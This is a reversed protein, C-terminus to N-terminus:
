LIMKRKKASGRDEDESDRRRKVESDWHLWMSTSSENIQGWKQLHMRVEVELSLIKRGWFQKLIPLVMIKMEDLEQLRGKRCSEWKREKWHAMKVLAYAVGIIVSSNGASNIIQSNYKRAYDKGGCALRHSLICENVSRQTVIVSESGLLGEMWCRGCEVTHRNTEVTRWDGYENVWDENLLTHYVAPVTEIQKTERGWAEQYQLWPRAGNKSAFLDFLIVYEDDDSNYDLM